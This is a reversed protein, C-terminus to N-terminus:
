ELRGGTAAKLREHRAERQLRERTQQVFDPAIRPPVPRPKKLAELREWEAQQAEQSPPASSPTFSSPGKLKEIRALEALKKELELDENMTYNREGNDAQKAEDLDAIKRLLNQRRDQLSTLVISDTM